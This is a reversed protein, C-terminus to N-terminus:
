RLGGSPMYVTVSGAPTLPGDAILSPPVSGHMQSAWEASRGHLGIVGALAWGAKSVVAVTVRSAKANKSVIDYLLATRNGGAGITPAAFTADPCAITLDGASAATPDQRDLLIMVVNTDKPLWTEMGPQQATAASLETMTLTTRQRNSTAVLPKHLTIVAGRALITSPGVQPFVNGVQWGAAAIGTAPAVGSMVAGFGSRLKPTTAVTGLCTFVAMEAGAPVTSALTGSVLSETDQLITGARDLYVVRVAAGGAFEFAAAGGALEWVHTVGAPISVGDRM